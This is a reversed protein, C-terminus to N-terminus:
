GSGFQAPLIPPLGSGHSGSFLSSLLSFDISLATFLHNELVPTQQADYAKVDANRGLVQEALGVYLDQVHDFVMLTAFQFNFLTGTLGQLLQVQQTQAPTLAPTGLGAQQLLPMEQQLANSHDIVLKQGFSQVAANTSNQEAIKGIMIEQQNSQASLTLFVKDVPSFNGAAQTGLFGPGAPVVREELSELTPRSQRVAPKKKGDRSRRSHSRIKALM